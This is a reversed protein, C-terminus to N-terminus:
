DDERNTIMKYLEVSEIDEKVNYRHDVNPDRDDIQSNKRPADELEKEIIQNEWEWLSYLHYTDM